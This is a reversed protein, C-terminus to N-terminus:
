LFIIKRVSETVMESSKEYGTTHDLECRQVVSENFITPFDCCMEPEVPPLATDCISPKLATGNSGKSDVNKSTTKNFCFSSSTLFFIGLVVAWKFM